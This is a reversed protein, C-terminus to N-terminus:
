YIAKGKKSIDTLYDFNLNKKVLNFFVVILKRKLVESISGLTHFIIIYAFLCLAINEKLDSFYFMYIM